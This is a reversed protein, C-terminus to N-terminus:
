LGTQPGEDAGPNNGASPRTREVIMKKGDGQEAEIPLIEEKFFGEKQAKAALQHSRVGWKDMDEKTLGSMGFLKEATLGMNMTTM